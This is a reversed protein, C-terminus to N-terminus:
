RNKKGRYASWRSRCEKGVRREESRRCGCGIESDYQDIRTFAYLCLSATVRVKCMKNADRVDNNGDVLHIQFAIVLRHEIADPCIVKRECFLKSQLSLTVINGKDRDRGQIPIHDDLTPIGHRPVRAGRKKFHQLAGWRSMGLSKFLESERYLVDTSRM